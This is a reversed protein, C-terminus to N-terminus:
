CLMPAPSRTLRARTSLRRRRQPARRRLLTLASLLPPMTIGHDETKQALRPSEAEAQVPASALMQPAATQVPASPRSVSPDDATKAAPLAPEHGRSIVIGIIAAAVILVLLKKM